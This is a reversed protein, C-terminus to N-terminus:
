CASAATAAAAVAVATGDNLAISGSVLQLVAAAVFREGHAM